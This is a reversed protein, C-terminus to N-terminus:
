IQGLPAVDATGTLSLAEEAKYWHLTTKMCRRAFPVLSSITNLKDSKYPQNHM